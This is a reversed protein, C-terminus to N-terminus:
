AALALVMPDEALRRVARSCRYRVMAPTTDHRRAAARGTLGDAYVSFL